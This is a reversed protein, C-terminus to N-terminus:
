SYFCVTQFIAIYSHQQISLFSNNLAILYVLNIMQSLLKDLWYFLKLTYLENAIIIVSYWCNHFYMM